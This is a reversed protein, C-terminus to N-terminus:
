QSLEERSDIVDWGSGFVGGARRQADGAPEVSSLSDRSGRLAAGEGPM